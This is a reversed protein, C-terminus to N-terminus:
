ALANICYQMVGDYTLGTIEDGNDAIRYRGSDDMGVVITSSDIYVPEGEYSNVAYDVAARIWETNKEDEDAADLPFMERQMAIKEDISLQDFEEETMTAGPDVYDCWLNFADAIEAMTPKHSM